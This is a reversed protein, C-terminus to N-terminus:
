RAAQVFDWLQGARGRIADRDRELVFGRQILDAAAADIRELYEAKGSYREEIPPRADGAAREKRVRAFPIFSGVMSYLENPAGISAARLNWGTYTGLPSAVEPM